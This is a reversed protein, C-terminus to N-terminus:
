TVVYVKDGPRVKAAVKIGVAQGATAQTVAQNEIQMSDVTQTVQTTTGEISLTEGVGLSDTLEIAAVSIKDFFHSVKGVLRKEEPM